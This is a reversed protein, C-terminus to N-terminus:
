PRGARGRWRALEYGRLDNGTHIGVGVVDGPQVTDFDLAELTEDTIRPRWVFGSDGRGPRLAMTAYHRRRWVVSPEPEGSTRDIDGALVRPSPRVRTTFFDITEDAHLWLFFDDSSQRSYRM